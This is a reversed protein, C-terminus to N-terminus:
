SSRVILELADEGVQCVIDPQIGNKEFRREDRFINKHTSLQICIKSHPLVILGINGYEICGKTASGVYKVQPHDEFCLATSEGSSMTDSDVLIYLPKNICDPTIKTREKDASFLRFKDKGDVKLSQEFKARFAHFYEENRQYFTNSQILQSIPNQLVAQSSIPHNFVGGYILAALEYGYHDNGGDNGRLDIVIKELDAKYLHSKVSDLFDNWVPENPMPFSDFGILLSNDKYDVLVTEDSAINKGNPYSKERRKISRDAYCKWLKLHHDSVESFITKIEDFLQNKDEINRLSDLESILKKFEQAPLYDCGAYGENLAEILLTIDTDINGSDSNLGYEIKYNEYNMLTVM